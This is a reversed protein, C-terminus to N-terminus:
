SPDGEVALWRTAVAIAPITQGINGLDATDFIKLDAANCFISQIASRALAQGSGALCFTKPISPYQNAVKQLGEVIRNQLAVYTQDAIQTVQDDNLDCDDACLM